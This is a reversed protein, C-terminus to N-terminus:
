RLHNAICAGNALVVLLPLVLLAVGLGQGVAIEGREDAVAVAPLADVLRATDPEDPLFLVTERREDKLEGPDTTRQTFTRRLGDPGLYEFTLEQVVRGNIRVNTPQESVFSAEASRGDRLLRLWRRGSRLSFAVLGAAIAPFLVVMMAGPGFMGRRMGAMRSFSPWSPVYEVPLETGVGPVSGTVYSTGARLSGAPVQYTYQVRYIPRKGESAGTSETATIRGDSKAATARLVIPALLEANMAFMWFFPTSFLLLGWGVVALGGGFLANVRVLLPVVRPPPALRDFNPRSM